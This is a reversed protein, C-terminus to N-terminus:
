KTLKEDDNTAGSGLLLGDRRSFPLVSDSFAREDHPSQTKSRPGSASDETSATLRQTAFVNILTTVFFLLNFTPALPSM